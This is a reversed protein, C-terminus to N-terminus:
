PVKSLPPDSGELLRSGASSQAGLAAGLLSSTQSNNNKMSYKVCAGAVPRGQAVCAGSSDLVRELRPSLVSRLHLWNYIAVARRQGKEELEMTQQRPTEHTEM